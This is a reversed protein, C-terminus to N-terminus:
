INQLKYMYPAHIQQRMYKDYIQCTVHLHLLCTLHVTCINLALGYMAGAWAYTMCVDCIYSAYPAYTAGAWAYTAFTAGTYIEYIDSKRLLECM